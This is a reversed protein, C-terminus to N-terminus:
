LLGALLEARDHILRRFLELAADHDLLRLTLVYTKLHQQELWHHWHDAQPVDPVERGGAGEAIAERALRACRECPFVRASTAPRFVVRDLESRPAQRAPAGAIPAPAERERAAERSREQWARAQAPNRRPGRGKRV